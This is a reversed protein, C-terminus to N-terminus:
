DGVVPPGFYDAVLVPLVSYFVPCSIEGVRLVHAHPSLRKHYDESAACIGYGVGLYFYHAFGCFLEAEFVPDGYRAALAFARREVDRRAVVYVGRVLAFAPFKGVGFDVHFPLGSCGKMGVM